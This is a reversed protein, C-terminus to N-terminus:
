KLEPYKKILKGLDNSDINVAPEKQFLLKLNSNFENFFEHYKHKYKILCNQAYDAIGFWPDIIVKKNGQKFQVAVHDYDILKKQKADYGYVGVIEVDKLNKTKCTIYAIDALEGCNACKYKKTLKLLTKYYSFESSAEHEQYRILSLRKEINEFLQEYKEPKGFNIWSYSPSIHPFSTNINRCIKDAEKIIPARGTFYETSPKTSINM